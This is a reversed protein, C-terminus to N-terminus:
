VSLAVINCVFWGIEQYPRHDGSPTNPVLALDKEGASSNILLSKGVNSREVFGIEPNLVPPSEKM